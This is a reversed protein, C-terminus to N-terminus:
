TGKKKSEPAPCVVEAGKWYHRHNGLSLHGLGALAYRESLGEKAKREAWAYRYSHLSVGEVGAVRKRRSFEASRANCTNDKIKPFWAGKSPLQNLILELEDGIALRAVVKTKSRAYSLIRESWDINSDDLHAADSQSAGTEWLLEYYLTREGDKESALIKQHEEQSIARKVASKEKPWLKMPIIPRVLWGMSVSFNHLRKLFHNAAVGGGDLISFFDEDVTDILRKDRIADFRTGAFARRKREQTQSAGQQSYRDIAMAWTRAAMAPDCAKLTALAVERQIRFDQGHQNRQTLIQEAEGKDKTRLSEQKGTRNCQIYYIGNRRFTRYRKKM